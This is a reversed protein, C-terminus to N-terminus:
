KKLAKLFVKWDDTGLYASLKKGPCLTEAYDKHTKIKSAPVANQKALYDTVTKLSAIQETKLEQEEFNGLLVILAHGTPDYSTNTDGRYNLPRGEYIEGTRDVIFHYPVDIWKKENRSWTQLNKLYEVVNKDDPFIEGGHHITIYEISHEYSADLSDTSGWESREILWDQANTSLLLGFNLLLLLFTFKINQM